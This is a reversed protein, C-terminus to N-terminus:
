GGLRSLQRILDMVATFYDDDPQEDCYIRIRRLAGDPDVGKLVDTGTALSLGTVLGSLWGRYRLYEAIGGEDGSEWGKFAALFRRCEKVGYDWVQPRDQAVVCVSWLSLVLMITPVRM